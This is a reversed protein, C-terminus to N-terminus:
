RFADAHDTVWTRFTRAPRGTVEEVTRTVIEPRDVMAAWASLAGDTFAPDWGGAVMRRRAEDRGLEDWATPRGLVEGIVRVQDAQTLVEPGTLEYAAGDHGDTTLVRVAVAAIDKEHILSRGAGGYPWHVVGDARIQAAWGLTNAAFGGPRVFTWALRTRRVLREIATHFLEGPRPEGDDPTGFASLYVVRRARREILDLVPPAGAATGFPWVLFVTGVGDLAAALTEPRSLDGQVVEAGAPLEARAPDRVLARVEAGADLLGPVVNRGVNGTAGTVLIM